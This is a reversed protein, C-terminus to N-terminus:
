EAIHGVMSITTGHKPNKQLRLVHVAQQMQILVVVLDKLICGATQTHSLSIWEHIVVLSTDLELVCGLFSTQPGM